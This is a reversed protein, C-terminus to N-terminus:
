ANYRIPYNRLTVLSSFSLAPPIRVCNDLDTASPRLQCSQIARKMRLIPWVLKVHRDGRNTKDAGLYFENMGRSYRVYKLPRRAAGETMISQRQPTAYSPWVGGFRSGIEDQKGSFYCSDLEAPFRSTSLFLAPQYGSLTGRRVCGQFKISQKLSSILWQSALSLM